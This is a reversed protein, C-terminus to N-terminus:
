LHGVAYYALDAICEDIVAQPYESNHEILQPCPFNAENDDYSHVVQIEDMLEKEMVQVQDVSFNNDVIRTM